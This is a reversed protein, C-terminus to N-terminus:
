KDGTKRNNNWPYKRQESMSTLEDRNSPVIQRMWTLNYEYEKLLEQSTDSIDDSYDFGLVKDYIGYRYVGYNYSNNACNVLALSFLEDYNKYTYGLCRDNDKLTYLDSCIIYLQKQVVYNNVGISSAACDAFIVDAGQENLAKACEYGEDVDAYSETYAKVIQTKYDYTKAGFEFGIEYANYKDGEIGIYGVTGTKSTKAALLGALFAAEEMKFDLYVVNDASGIQGALLVKTDPYDEAKAVLIDAINKSSTAIFDTKNEFSLSIADSLEKTNSPLVVEYNYGYADAQKKLADQMSKTQASQKGTVDTLFVIDFTYEGTQSFCGSIFLISCLCITLLKKKM